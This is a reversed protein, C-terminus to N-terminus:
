FIPTSRIDYFDLILSIFSNIGGFSSYAVIWCVTLFPLSPSRKNIQRRISKFFLFFLGTIACLGIYAGWWTESVTPGGGNYYRSSINLYSIWNPILMDMPKLAWIEVYFYPRVLAADNVGHKFRYIIFSGLILGSTLCTALFPFIMLTSGKQSRLMRCLLAILYIQLFFFAWYINLLGSLSGIIFTLKFRFSSWSLKQVTAVYWLCYLQLPLLGTFGVGIHDLSRQSQPLFAYVISFLWSTSKSVKWLRAASYFSVAAVVSSILLM